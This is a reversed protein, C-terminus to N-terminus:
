LDLIRAERSVNIVRTKGVKEEIGSAEHVHSCLVIDPELRDIAKKLGDSGPVIMSLKSMDTEAPHVHSILIKKNYPKLKNFGKKLIDYIEDEQLKEMGMNAGGCGFFGVGDYVATYGHLNTAGYVEALFDATAFTDHNGPILLVKKKKKAFPGLINEPIQHMNGLDGTLIVLDVKEKVAKDALKQALKSDGHIDGSALIRM